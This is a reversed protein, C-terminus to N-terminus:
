IWEVVDSEWNVLRWEGNFQQDSFDSYCVAELVAQSSVEGILEVTYTHGNKLYAYVYGSRSEDHWKSGPIVSVEDSFIKQKVVEKNETHDYVRLYIDIKTSFSGTYPPLFTGFLLGRLYYNVTIKNWHDSATYTFEDWVRATAWYSGAAWARSFVHIENGNTYAKSFGIGSGGSDATGGDATPDSHYYGSKIFTNIEDDKFGTRNKVIEKVVKDQKEIAKRYQEKAIIVAEEYKKRVEEKSTNQLYRYIEETDILDNPSLNKTDLTTVTKTQKGMVPSVVSSWMVLVLLVALGVKAVRM